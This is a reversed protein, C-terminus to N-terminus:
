IPPRTARTPRAEAADPSISSSSGSDSRISPRAPGASCGPGHGGQVVLAPKGDPNGCAKRYVLNGDGTDLMGPDYPEISPYPVAM